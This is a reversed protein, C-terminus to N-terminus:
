FIFIFRSLPYSHRRVLTTMRELKNQLPTNVSETVLNAKIKGWQSNLGILIVVFIFMIVIIIITIIMIGVIKLTYFSTTVMFNMATDSYLIIITCAYLFFDVGKRIMFIYVYVGIGIVM